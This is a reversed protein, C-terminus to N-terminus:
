RLPASACLIKQKAKPAAKAAFLALSAFCAPLCCCDFVSTNDTVILLVLDNLM